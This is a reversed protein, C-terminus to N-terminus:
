RSRRERTSGAGLPLAFSLWDIITGAVIAAMGLRLDVAFMVLIAFAAVVLLGKPQFRM